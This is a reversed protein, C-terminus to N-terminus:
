RPSGRLNRRYSQATRRLGEATSVKPQWALLEYNKTIDVQLSGCLRKIMEAKGTARGLAHLLTQPFPFLRSHRDLARATERLLEPTSLDTGDSVLFTQQAASPHRLCVSIFDVLNDLGLISRRNDLAAFPLPVGADVWRLLTLFNAKVGPGYILVPRICVVEMGTEESIGWLREEADRKSMGYPDEPRPPSSSTFPAGPLTSEGNVKVSSIFVFRKVGAKAAQRALAATGEVNVARFDSLAAADTHMVHVRAATHVVADIGQLADSWDTDRSLPSVHVSEVNLPLDPKAAHFSGRLRAGNM